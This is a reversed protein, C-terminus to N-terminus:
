DTYLAKIAGWTSPRVSLPPCMDVDSYASCVIVESSDLLTFHLANCTIENSGRIQENIVLTGIGAIDVTQNALGSVAVVVNNIRLDTITTEATLGGCAAVSEARVNLATVTVGVLGLNIGASLGDVAAASHAVLGIGSTTCAVATATAHSAGLSASANVVFDTQTGGSPPLPGTDCVIVPSVLPADMYLGFARGSFTNARSSDVLALCLLLVPGALLTSKVNTM